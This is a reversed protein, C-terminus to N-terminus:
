RTGTNATCAAEQHKSFEQVFHELDDAKDGRVLLRGGNEVLHWTKTANRLRHILTVSQGQLRGRGVSSEGGLPLDGNWLDKLVLLLLGIEADQPQRLSMSLEVTANPGGFTPQESFLAQPYAGGTFRDIKVRTQVWDQTGQLESEHTVMRSGTPKDSANRIDCGFMGDVLVRGGQPLMTNAIRLARGRMAGALSTGSLVPVLHGGRRTRLHVADPITGQEESSSRILLSSKLQFVAKEVRFEQRADPAIAQVPLLACIDPGQRESSSDETLWAVLERTSTAVQYRRVRWNAVRCEGLGRRKRQGLGIEGEQLGRLAIALAEVLRPSKGDLLLEFSLPFCTGAEILEIDYKKKDRATRTTADITVGDRLEVGFRPPTDALPNPPAQPPQPPPHGLADDVL